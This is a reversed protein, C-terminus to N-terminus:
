CGEEEAEGGSDEGKLGGGAEGEVEEAGNEDAAEEV